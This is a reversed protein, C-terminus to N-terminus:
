ACENACGTYVGSQYKQVKGKLPGHSETRIMSKIKLDQLGCLKDM